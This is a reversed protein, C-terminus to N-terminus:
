KAAAKLNEVEQNTLFSAEKIELNVPALWRGLLVTKGPLVVFTLQNDKLGFNYIGVNHVTSEVDIRLRDDFQIIGKIVRNQDTNTLYFYSMSERVGSKNMIRFRRPNLKWFNDEEFYKQSSDELFLKRSITLMQSASTNTNNESIVHTVVKILKSSNNIKTTFALDYGVEHSTIGPMPTEGGNELQFDIDYKTATDNVKFNMKFKDALKNNDKGVDLIKSEGAKTYFVTSTNTNPQQLIDTIKKDSVEVDLPFVSVSVEIKKSTSENDALAVNTFLLASYIFISVIFKSMQFEKQKLIHEYFTDIL